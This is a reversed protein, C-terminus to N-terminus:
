DETINLTVQKCIKNVTSVFSDLLYISVVKVAYL